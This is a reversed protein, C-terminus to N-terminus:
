ADDEPDDDIREGLLQFRVWAEGRETLRWRRNDVAFLKKRAKQNLTDTINAPASEGAQELIEVIDGSRWRSWGKYEQLWLAVVGAKEGYTRASSRELLSKATPVPKEPEFEQLLDGWQARVAGLLAELQGRDFGTPVSVEVQNKHFRITAGSPDAM